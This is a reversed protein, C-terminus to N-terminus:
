APEKRRAAIVMLFSILIFAILSLLPITIFGFLNIYTATCSVTASCLAVRETIVGYQLLNQYAAFILGILSLPLVYAPLGRDRRIIGVASLLVIPYLAIRQYWCLNCPAFHRIESFYLSGFLGLLSIILVLYYIQRRAIRMQNPKVM